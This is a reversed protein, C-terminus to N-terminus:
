YLSHIKCLFCVPCIYYMGAKTGDYSYYSGDPETTAHDRSSPTLRPSPLETSGQVQQPPTADPQLDQVCTAPATVVRVRGRACAPPAVNVPTHSQRHHQTDSNSRASAMVADGEYDVAGVGRDGSEMQQQQQKNPREKEDGAAVSM